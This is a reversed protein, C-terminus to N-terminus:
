PFSPLFRRPRFLSSFFSFRSLFTSSQVPVSIIGDESTEASIIDTMLEGTGM